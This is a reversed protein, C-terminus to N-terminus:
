IDESFSVLDFIIIKIIKNLFIILYFLNFLYSVNIDVPFRYSFVPLIQFLIFIEDINNKYYALIVKLLM